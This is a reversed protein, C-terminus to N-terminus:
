RLLYSGLKEIQGIAVFDASCSSPDIEYGDDRRQSRAPTSIQGNLDLLIGSGQEQRSHSRVWTMRDTDTAAAMTMKKFSFKM